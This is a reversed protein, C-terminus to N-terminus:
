PDIRLLRWEKNEGFHLVDHTSQPRAATLVQAEPAEVAFWAPGKLSSMQAVSSDFIRGPVYPMVNLGVGGTRYLPAPRASVAESVLRGDLEAQRFREPMLPAAIDAYVLGYILLPIPALLLVAASDPRRELLADYVVGGVVCLPLIAPFFYRPTSGGPWFLIILAAVFAYCLLALLFRPPANFRGGLFRVFPLTVIAITVPLIEPALHALADLPGSLRVAPAFRMFGAWQGEDGPVYVSKYWAAIPVICVIGALIMGPFQRWSRTLLLYVGVGLAFYAVPQPGKMLGALALAVGIAIWSAFTHRGAAEGRWWVAFAAFLLVSLPLDATVMVANRLVIPCTFFLAVGALAASVRMGASRLLAYILLAGGLLFLAVPVRSSVQTVEGFPASVAAILWSLLTPREVFRVHFTHPELWYGDEVASRAITVALGEDATFGRLFVLPLALLAWAGAILLLPNVASALREWGAALGAGVAAMRSGEGIWARASRAESM